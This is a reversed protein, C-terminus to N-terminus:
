SPITLITHRREIRCLWAFHQCGGTQKGQPPALHQVEHTNEWDWLWSPNTCMSVLCRCFSVIVARSPVGLSGDVPSPSPHTPPARHTNTIGVPLIWLGPMGLLWPHAEQHRGCPALLNWTGKYTGLGLQQEGLGERGRLWAAWRLIRSPVLFFHAKKATEQVAPSISNESEHKWKGWPSVDCASFYRGASLLAVKSSPQHLYLSTVGRAGKLTDLDCITKSWCHAPVEGSSEWVEVFSSDDVPSHWFQQEKLALYYFVEEAM